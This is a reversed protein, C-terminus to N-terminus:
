VPCDIPLSNKPLMMGLKMRVTAMRAVTAQIQRRWGARAAAPGRNPQRILTVGRRSIREATDDTSGDDVLVLELEHGGSELQQLADLTREIYRASNFCPVVVSVNM